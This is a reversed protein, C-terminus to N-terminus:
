EVTVSKALNRPQDIECGRLRAFHYALLQLVIVGLLANMYDHGTAPIRLVFDAVPAAVEDEAPVPLPREFLDFIVNGQAFYAIESPGGMQVATPFLWAQFIPRTTVDPSFREPESELLAILEQKTYKRDGVRFDNGDRHVSTRGDLEVFLYAADDQKQVQLHYGAAEAELVMSSLFQDLIHNVQGPSTQAWTYGIMRSRRLRMNRAIQNPRYGLESVADTIRRATEQSVRAQRNLVKSVTQYSVGARAAVEKLTVKRAM